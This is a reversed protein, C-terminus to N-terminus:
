TAEEHAVASRGRWVPMAELTSLLTEYTTTSADNYDCLAGMALMDSNQRFRVASPGVIHRHVQEFLQCARRWGFLHCLGGVIDWSAAAEDNYTVPEGEGDRAECGTCWRQEDDFLALM